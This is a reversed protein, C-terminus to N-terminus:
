FSMKKRKIVCSFSAFRCSSPISDIFLRQRNSAIIEVYVLAFETYTNVFTHKILKLGLFNYKLCTTDAQTIPTCMYASKTCLSRLNRFHIQMISIHSIEWRVCVCVCFMSTLSIHFSYVCVCVCVAGVLLVVIHISYSISQIPRSSCYNEVNQKIDSLVEFTTTSYKSAPYIHLHILDHKCNLCM